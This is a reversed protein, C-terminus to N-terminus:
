FECSVNRALLANEICYVQGMRKSPKLGTKELNFEDNACTKV